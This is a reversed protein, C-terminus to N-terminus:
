PGPNDARGRRFCGCRNAGGDKRWVGAALGALPAKDPENRITDSFIKRLTTGAHRM